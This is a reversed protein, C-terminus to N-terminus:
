GYKSARERRGKDTERKYPATDRAKIFALNTGTDRM